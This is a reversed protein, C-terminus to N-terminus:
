DGLRINNFIDQGSLLQRQVYHVNIYNVSLSSIAITERQTVCVCESERYYTYIIYKYIYINYNVSLSSIAITEGSASPVARAFNKTPVCKSFYEM